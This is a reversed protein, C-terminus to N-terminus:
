LGCAGAEHLMTSMWYENPKINALVRVDGERDIDTCFAHPSKKPKEYLDSREIVDDIPLGIGTYFERCIRLLDSKAYPGNLDVDYVAPPEQFFPDHYHWPRLQEVSIGYNKALQQDIENKVQAFPERTLEDLEDFLALVESQKQENLELKMAHFNDFGLQKAAQNRLLVLDRLDATVKSGVEKSAEWIQRREDSNKSERLITRVQSDTLSEEGITARFNNFTKEISNEKSSIRKLIELDVQKELYTLYLIEIQRAIQQDEITGQKIKKLQKFKEASSLLENLRNEISEKTAFDEDRGKTNADWWALGVATNLPQVITEYEQIFEKAATMTEQDASSISNNFALSALASILLATILSHRM